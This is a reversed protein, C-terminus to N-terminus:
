CTILWGQEAVLLTVIPLVIVGAIGIISFKIGQALGRKSIFWNTLAKDVAITLALNIGTGIILGWVLYYAWLSTVLNMLVLGTSVICIGVVIVWRPGFKDALWGTLPAEIGAVLRGIGSAFSTAARSLGLEFALPKFFVSFGFDNFGNGLGSIIGTVLNTWWGFFLRPFRRRKIM